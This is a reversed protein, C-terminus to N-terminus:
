RTIKPLNLVTKDAKNYSKYFLNNLMLMIRAETQELTEDARNVFPMIAMTGEEGDLCIGEGNKLTALDSDSMEWWVGVNAIGAARLFNILDMWDNHSNAIYKEWISIFTDLNALGIGYRPTFQHMSEITKAIFFNSM